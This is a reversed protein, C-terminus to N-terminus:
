KGILLTIRAHESVNKADKRDKFESWWFLLVIWKEQQLTFFWWFIVILDIILQREQRFLLEFCACDQEVRQGMSLQSTSVNWSHRLQKKHIWYETRILRKFLVFLRYINQVLYVVFYEDIKWYMLTIVAKPLYVYYPRHNSPGILIQGLSHPKTQKRKWIKFEVKVPKM